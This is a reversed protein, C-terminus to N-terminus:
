VPLPWKSYRYRVSVIGTVAVIGHHDSYQYRGGVISTVAV